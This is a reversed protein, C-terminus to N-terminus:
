VHCDYTRAITLVVVERSIPDLASREFEANAASFGELTEPSTAMLRVATPLHGLAREIGAM